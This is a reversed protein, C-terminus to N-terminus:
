LKFENPYYIDFGCRIIYNHDNLESKKLDFGIFCGINPKWWWEIDGSIFKTVLVSGSPFPVEQFSEYPHYPNVQITQDGIKREGFLLKTILNSSNFINIGVKYQEGDSGYEWGLPFGRQVFNNFGSQHRMTHTGVMVYEAFFSTYMKDVLKPFWVSKVSFAHSHGEGKELQHDIDLTYEDFLLNGSLRISPKILWDMSLQWIGNASKTGFQNQRENMEIELHTSIPNIYSIDLPRNIGSYIVFEALGILITKSNTWEIGRGTIYRNYNSEQELFGHFYRVRLNDFDLGLLGFDYSPSKESIALQIDNGAGWSQRGRGWQIIMWDNEYGIGSIDTEGTRGFYRELGTYRPFIKPNNVIRPYLYGYFNKRYSFDAYSYASVGNKQNIIKGNFGIRLKIILSDVYHNGTSNKFYRNPGFTTNYEWKNGLDM